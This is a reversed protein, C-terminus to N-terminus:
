CRVLQQILLGKESFLTFFHFKIMLPCISIYKNSESKCNGMSGQTLAYMPNDKKLFLQHLIKNEMIQVEKKTISHIGDPTIEYM